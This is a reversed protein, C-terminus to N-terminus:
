AKRLSPEVGEIQENIDRCPNILLKDDASCLHIHVANWIMALYDDTLDQCELAKSESAPCPSPSNILHKGIVKLSQYTMGSLKSTSDKPMLKM